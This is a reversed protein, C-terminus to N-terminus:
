LGTLSAEGQFHCLTKGSGRAGIWSSWNWRRDATPENPIQNAAHPHMNYSGADFNWMDNVHWECWAAFEVLKSLIVIGAGDNDRNKFVFVASSLMQTSIDAEFIVGCTPSTFKPGCMYTFFDEEAMPSKGSVGHHYWLRSKEMLIPCPVPDFIAMAQEQKMHQQPSLSYPCRKLQRLLMCFPWQATGRFCVLKWSDSFYVGLAGPTSGGGELTTIGLSIFPSKEHDSIKNCNFNDM